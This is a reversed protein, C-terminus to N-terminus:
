GSGRCRGGPGSRLRPELRPSKRDSCLSVPAFSSRVRVPRGPRVPTLGPAPPEAYKCVRRAVWDRVPRTWWGPPNLATVSLGPLPLGSEYDMSPAASDPGPGDSYRVFLAPETDVLRVIEDLDDVVDLEIAPDVAVLPSEGRM